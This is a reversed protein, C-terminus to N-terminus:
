AIHLPTNDLKDKAIGVAVSSADIGYVFKAYTALLRTSVGMGSGYDIVTKNKFLEAHNNILDPNFGFTESKPLHEKVFNYITKYLESYLTARINYDEEKLIKKHYGSSIRFLKKCNHYGLKEYIDDKNGQLRWFLAKLRLGAVGILFFNKYKPPLKKKFIYLPKDFNGQADYHFGIKINRNFDQDM